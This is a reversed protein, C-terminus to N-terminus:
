NSCKELVWCVFRRFISNECCGDEGEVLAGFQDERGSWCVDFFPSEKPVVRAMSFEIKMEVM